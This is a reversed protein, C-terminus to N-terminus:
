QNLNVAKGGLVKQFVFSIGVIDGNSDFSYTGITGEYSKLSHLYDKVKSPDEGVQGIAQALLKLDDYAAGVYYPYTADASYAAKYAKLLDGGKGQSSLGPAVAIIMGDTPKGAGTVIPDNFESAFFQANIGMTRAQTALRVLNQPTQPNLFVADPNATKIKLLISRFDTANTDFTEDAVVKFGLKNLEALYTDHLGQAYDTKESIIAPSKFSKALLDAIAVGRGADSPANRLVYPSIGSIKPSTAGPSLTVAKAADVIPASALVESSCVGDILFKVGDVNVLKQAASVAAQGDCKGDEFIGQIQRGDIGGADNVEKIAIRIGNSIPEGYAGADGSLPLIVGIQIPGTAAPKSNGKSIAILVVVVIILVVVWLLIKKM